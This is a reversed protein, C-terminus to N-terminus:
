IVMRIKQVCFLFIVTSTSTSPGPQIIVEELVIEEDPNEDTKRPTKQIKKSRKQVPEEEHDGPELFRKPKKRERRPLRM